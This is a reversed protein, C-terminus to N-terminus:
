RVTPFGDEGAAETLRSVDTGDANMVFIDPNGGTSPRFSMFYIQQGNRSWSPARSCWSAPLDTPNKPTLNVPDSSGDSNMLFVSCYGERLSMFALHRGDPSWAAMQDLAIHTTLRVPNEGDAADIVYVDHDRRIALQMGSPSWEPFQDFGSYTTVQTEGTGDANIIYIEYNGSSNSHFAIERGNPSWRPWGEVASAGNSTLQTVDSGDANMVFIETDGELNTPTLRNSVFVIQQGNPSLDPQTDAATDETIRREDSGDLNMRYINFNGDRQSHFTVSGSPGNSTVVGQTVSEPTAHRHAYVASLTIGAFLLLAISISIIRKM